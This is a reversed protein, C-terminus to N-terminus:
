GFSQRRAVSRDRRDRDALPEVVLELLLVHREGMEEGEAALRHRTRRRELVDLDELALLQRLLAGVLTAIEEALELRQTAMRRDTVDAAEAEHARDLEDLVLGRLLREAPARGRRRMREASADGLQHFLAAEQGADEHRDLERRRQHDRGLLDVAHHRDDVLAEGHCLLLEAEASSESSCGTYLRLAPEVRGMMCMPEISIRSSQRRAGMAAMVLAGNRSTARSHPLPSVVVSSISAKASSMSVGRASSM